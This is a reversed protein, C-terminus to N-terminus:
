RASTSSWTSRARAKRSWAGPRTPRSRPCPPGWRSARGGHVRPDGIRAAPGRVPPGVGPERLRHRLRARPGGRVPDRDARPHGRAEAAHPRHRPRHRAPVPQRRGADRLAGRRPRGPPGAPGPLMRRGRLPVRVAGGGPPDARPHRAGAARRPRPRDSAPVVGRHGQDERRPPRPAGRHLPRHPVDGRDARRPTSSSRAWPSCTPTTTSAPTAPPRRTSASPPACAPSRTRRWRPGSAPATSSSAWGPKAPSAGGARRRARHRSLGGARHLLHRPRQLSLGPPHAAGQGGGEAPLRRPGRGGGGRGRGPAAPAQVIRIGRTAALERAWPTVIAGLGTSLEGGPPVSQVDQATIVDKMSPDGIRRSSLVRGGPWRWGPEIAPPAGRGSSARVGVQHGHLRTRQRSSADQGASQGCAPTGRGGAGEVSQSERPPHPSGPQRQGDAAEQTPFRRGARSTSSYGARSCPWPSWSRPPGSTRAGAMALANYNDYVLEVATPFRKRLATRSARVLRAISPDFRAIFGAVRRAPSQDPM